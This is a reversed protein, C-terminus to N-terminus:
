VQLTTQQSGNTRGCRLKCWSASDRYFTVRIDEERNKENYLRVLHLPSGVGYGKALNDRFSREEPTQVAELKQRLSSWTTESSLANLGSEVKANSSVSNGNGFISSAMDGIMSSFPNNSSLCLYDRTRHVPRKLHNRAGVFGLVLLPSPMLLV